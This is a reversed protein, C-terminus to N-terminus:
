DRDISISKTPHVVEVHHLRYKNMNGTPKGSYHYEPAEIDEHHSYKFHTNDPLVMEKESTHNNLKSHSAYLAHQGKPLRTVIIDKGKGFHTARNPDLTTSSFGKNNFVDGKKLSRLKDSQPGHIGRYVWAAKPLKHGGVARRLHGVLEETEKSGGGSRLHNNVDRYEPTTWRRVADGAKSDIHSLDGTLHKEAREQVWDNTSRDKDMLNKKFTDPHVGEAGDKNEVYAEMIQRFSKM